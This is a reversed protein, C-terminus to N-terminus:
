LNNLIRKISYLKHTYNSKENDVIGIEDLLDIRVEGSSHIIQSHSLIIGVHIIKGQANNFFALDGPMIDLFEVKRGCQEQQWSDRPLKFGCMKFVQQVLGSCDIGFSSKGGWLYPAGLFLRAIKELIRSDNITKPYLLDGQFEYRDNGLDIIGHHYFPIVSGLLVPIFRKENKVLGILDKCIPYLINNLEEFYEKSVERFQKADIWGCYQDFAIEIYVWKSDDSIRIIKFTDGFLLQTGLESKNHPEFRVSVISLHCIGFRDM